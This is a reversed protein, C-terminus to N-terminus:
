FCAIEYQSIADPVNTQRVKAESTKMVLSTKTNPYSKGDKGLHTGEATELRTFIKVGDITFVRIEDGQSDKSITCPIIPNNKALENFLNSNITVRSYDGVTNFISFVSFKTDM